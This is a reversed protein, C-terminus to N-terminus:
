KFIEALGNTASANQVAGPDTFWFQHYLALGSPIGPPNTGTYMFDGNVDSYVPFTFLAANPDPVFVGGKFPLNAQDLSFFWYGFANPLVRRVKLSVEGGEALDGYGKLQPAAPATGKLAHGVDVFGHVGGESSAYLRAGGNNDLNPMGVIVDTTGGEDVYGACVLSSAGTPLDTEDIVAGDKGSLFLLQGIGETGGKPASVAVDMYGDGDVDGAANAPWGFWDDTDSGEAQWLLSGDAGSWARVRGRDSDTPDNPHAWFPEASIFDAVGDGSADGIIDGYMSYSGADGDIRYLEDGTAGSVIYFAGTTYPWIVDMSSGVGLDPIGDEDVDGNASLSLGFAGYKQPTTRYVQLTDRTAGSLLRVEGANILGALPMGSVSVFFDRVGDGDRDITPAMQYAFHEGGLNGQLEEVISGDAGSLILLHGIFNSGGGSWNGDSYFIEPIDDGTLDDFGMVEAVGLLGPLGVTLDIFPGSGDGAFVMLRTASSVIYDDLGDEDLDGAVGVAAGLGDGGPPNTITYVTGGGPISFVKAAPDQTGPDSFLGALLDPKGNGSLDGPAAISAFSNLGGILTNLVSGTAGDIIDAEGQYLFSLHVGVLDPIDDDNLDGVSTMLNPAIIPESWIPRRTASSFLDLNDPNSAAIALDSLNDGDIDGADAVSVGFGSDEIYGDIRFIEAGDFASLVRVLGKGPGQTSFGPDGIILDTKGDNNLDAISDM